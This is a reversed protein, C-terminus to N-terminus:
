ASGGLLLNFALGGSEEPQWLIYNGMVLGKSIFSSTKSGAVYIDVGYNNVNVYNNSEAADKVYLGGEKIEIYNDLDSTHQAALAADYADAAKSGAADAATQALDVNGAILTITGNSSLDLNNAASIDIQDASSIHVSSNASLDLGSAVSVDIQGTSTIKISSNSSLDIGSAAEASIQGATKISVTENASLDIGKAADATIQGGSTIKVTDNASLDVDSAIATLASDTLRMAAATADSAVVWEIKDATQKVGSLAESNAITTEMATPTLKSEATDVREVLGSYSSSSTVTQVIADDTIKLEAATVRSALASKDVDNVINWGLEQTTSDKKYIKLVNPFVGTDLWLDGESPNEPATDQQPFKEDIAGTVETKVKATVSENGSLDVKDAIATLAKDTLTLETSTSSSDVVLGIKSDLLTISSNNTLDIDDGFKPTSIVSTALKGIFATSATLEDVNLERTGITSELIKAGGITADKINENEVQVETTAVAGSSDVSIQYFKGDDKQLMLKGATLNAINADDVILRDLYLKGGSGERFIATGASLDKIQAYGIDARNINSLGIDALEAYVKETDVEKITAKESVLRIFEAYSSSLDDIQASKITANTIRVDSIGNLTSMIKIATEDGAAANEEADILYSAVVGYLGTIQSPSITGSWSGGGSSSGGSGGYRTVRANVYSKNNKDTITNIAKVIQEALSKVAASQIDSM